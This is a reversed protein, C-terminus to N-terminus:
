LPVGILLLVEAPRGVTMPDVGGLGQYALGGVLGVVGHMGANFTRRIAPMRTPRTLTATIGVLGGGLPGILVAAALIVIGFFSFRIGDGSLSILTDPLVRSLVGLL